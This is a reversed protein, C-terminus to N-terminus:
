SRYWYSDLDKMIIESLGRNEIRFYDNLFNKTANKMPPAARKHMPNITRLSQDMVKLLIRIPHPKSTQTNYGRTLRAKRDTMRLLKNRFLQMHLNSPIIARNIHTNIKNLDIEDHSIDLFKCVDKIISPTSNIFEEFLIFYIQDRPIFSLFWEIQTKYLSRYVLDFPAIQLSKEFKWLARGTGVLHWYHSYTRTTPDRMIIIIKVAPNFKSIRQPAKVSAMYTTSDEGVLHFESADKFFSEYWIYYEEFYEEYKPYHWNGNDFVFLDTNQMLDDINFFHIEDNPIFIKPHSNLINHLSTTGCKMGGAIIFDPFHKKKIAANM